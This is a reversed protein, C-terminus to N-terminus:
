IGNSGLTHLVNSIGHLKVDDLLAILSTTFFTQLRVYETRQPYSKRTM